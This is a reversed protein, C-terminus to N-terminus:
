RPAVEAPSELRSAALAADIQRRLQRAAQYIAAPSQRAPVEVGTSPTVFALFSRRDMPQEM